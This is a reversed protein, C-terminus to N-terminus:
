FYKVYAIGNADTFTLSDTSVKTLRLNLTRDVIDNVRYVRDNMLVKSEAGSSRIGTVRLTDIFQHVREDPRAPAKAAPAPAPTLPLADPAAAVSAPTSTATTPSASAPGTAAPPPTTAVAQPAEPQAAKPATVVPESTTGPAVPAPLKPLVVSPAAAPKPDAKAAVPAAAPKSAPRTLWLATLVMSAVVLIVAGSAILFISTASKPQPRKAIPGGAGATDGTPGEHRLRQAKKLAENILSM